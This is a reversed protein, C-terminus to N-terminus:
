KFFNCLLYCIDGPCERLGLKCQCRKLFCRGRGMKWGADISESNREPSPAPVLLLELNRSNKFIVKPFTKQNLSSFFDLWKFWGWFFWKIRNKKPSDSYNLIWEGQKNAVNKQPKLFAPCFTWRGRTWSSSEWGLCMSTTEGPTWRHRYLNWWSLRFLRCLQWCRDVFLDGPTQLAQGSIKLM